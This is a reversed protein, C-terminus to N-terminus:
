NGTPGGVIVMPYSAPRRTARPLNALRLEQAPEYRIEKPGQGTCARCIERDDPYAVDPSRRISARAGSPLPTRESWSLSSAIPNKPGYRPLHADNGGVIRFSFAREGLYTM